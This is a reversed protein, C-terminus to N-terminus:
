TGGGTWARAHQPFLRTTWLEQPYGLEKAKRCTLDVQASGASLMFLFFM